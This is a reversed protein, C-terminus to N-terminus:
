SAVDNEGGGKHKAILASLEGIFGPAPGRLITSEWKYVVRDVEGVPVVPPVEGDLLARLRDVLVPAPRGDADHYYEVLGRLATVLADYKAAKKKLKAHEKADVVEQPEELFGM